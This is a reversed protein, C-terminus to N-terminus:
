LTVKMCDEKRGSIDERGMLSGKATTEGTYTATPSFKKELVM